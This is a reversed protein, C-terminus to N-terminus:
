NIKGLLISKIEDDQTVDVATLDRSNQVTASAGQQILYKILQKNNKYAAYHLLTDGMKNIPENINFGTEKQKSEITAKLKKFDELHLLVVLNNNPLNSGQAGM